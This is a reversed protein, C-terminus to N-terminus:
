HLSPSEGECGAEEATGERGGAAIRELEERSLQAADRNGIDGSHEVAQLDPMAKKLLIEAARIQVPTMEVKGSVCRALKGIILGVPIGERARAAALRRRTIKEDNLEAGKPDRSDAGM